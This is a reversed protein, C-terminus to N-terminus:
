FNIIGASNLREIWLNISDLLFYDKPTLIVVSNSSLYEKLIKFNINKNESQKLQQNIFFKFFTSTNIIATNKHIKDIQFQMLLQNLEENKEFFKMRSMIKRSKESKNGFVSSYVLFGKFLVGNEVLEDITEPDKLHTNSSIIEFYSGIYATRIVLTFLVFSMMLFRSFNRSPLKPLSVGMFISFMNLHPTDIRFGFIFNQVKKHLNEVIMIVITGILYSLILLIWVEKSFPYITKEFSNL